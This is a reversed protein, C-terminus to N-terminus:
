HHKDLLAVPKRVIMVSCAAHHAFSEAVSGLLIRDLGSRSHSGLVIFDANWEGAIEVIKKPAEGDVVRIDVNKFDASQFRGSAERLFKTAQEQRGWVSQDPEAIGPQGLVHLLLIHSDRPPAFALLADIAALSLTSEDMAVLIRFGRPVKDARQTQETQTKEM